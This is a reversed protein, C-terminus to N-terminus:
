HNIKCNPLAKQLNAVGADTVQTAYLQLVRLETLGKLHELGADTVGTGDLFLRELHVLKKVHELGADTVQSDTLDLIQLQPLDELCELAADTSAKAWKWVRGGRKYEDSSHGGARQLRDELQRRDVIEKLQRLSVGLWGLGIGLIPVVLLLTRLRFQCWRLKRKLTSATPVADTRM